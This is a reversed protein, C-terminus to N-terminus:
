KGEWAAAIRARVRDRAANLEPSLFPRPDQNVQRIHARVNVVGGSGLKGRGGRRGVARSRRTFAKVNVPGHYGLEWFRGYEVNTGVSSKATTEDATFVQTISRRLRGTRVKLAGGTLQNQKVDGQLEIGLREVARGIRGWATASQAKLNVEVTDAGTVTARLRITM